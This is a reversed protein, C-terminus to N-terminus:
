PLLEDPAAGPLLEHVLAEGREPDVDLVLRNPAISAAFAAFARRGRDVDREGGAPFAVTRFAGCPRCPLVALVRFFEPVVHLLQRAGRRIWRWEVRYRLLGHSRVVDTATAGIAAAVLAAVVETEQVTGVLLLWLVFLGGFWALWSAVRRMAPGHGRDTGDSCM